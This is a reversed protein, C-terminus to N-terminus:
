KDQKRGEFFLLLAGFFIFSLSSLGLVEADILNEAPPNRPLQTDPQAVGGGKTSDTDSDLGREGGHETSKFRNFIQLRFPPACSASDQMLLKKFNM